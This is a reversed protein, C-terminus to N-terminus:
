NHCDLHKYIYGIFNLVINHIINKYVYVVKKESLEKKIVM